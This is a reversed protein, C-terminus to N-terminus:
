RGTWRTFFGAAGSLVTTGFSCGRLAAGTESGRGLGARLPEPPGIPRVDKKITSPSTPAIVHKASASTGAVYMLHRGATINADSRWKSRVTAPRASKIIAAQM